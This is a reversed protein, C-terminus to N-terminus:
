KAATVKVTLALRPAAKLGRIVLVGDKDVAVVGSQPPPAAGGRPDKATIAEWRLKQAPRIKFKGLRRFSLDFSCM